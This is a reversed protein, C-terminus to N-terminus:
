CGACGGFDVNLFGGAGLGRRLEEVDAFWAFPVVGADGPRDVDGEALERCACGFEVLGSRDDCDAVRTDAAQGSGIMQEIGSKTVDGAEAASDDGPVFRALEDLLLVM